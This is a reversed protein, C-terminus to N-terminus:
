RAQGATSFLAVFFSIYVFGVIGGVVVIIVPEIIVSFRRIAVQLQSEHFRAVEDLVDDLTGTSEGVAVMAALMPMFAMPVRLPEALTGGQMVSDRASAVQLALHRNRHLHEVTRLGELLTIGSRILIGLSRSFTATASLRILVGIIPVRLLARDIWERGPPWSYISAGLGTLVALGGLCYTFYVQIFESMDVLMQTMAPLKRGLASLFVQLKPIVSVLMFATVGIAAVVV